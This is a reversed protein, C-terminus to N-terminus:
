YALSNDQGKFQQLANKIASIYGVDIKWQNPVLNFFTNRGREDYSTLYAYKALDNAVMRIAEDEHYLLDAFATTLRNDVDADNNMTAEAPIIRDVFTQSGDAPYEQLYDLLPNKFTGDQAILDPFKDKNERIYAKLGAWVKCM